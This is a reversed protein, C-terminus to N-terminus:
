WNGKRLSAARGVWEKHPRCHTAVALSICSRKLGLDRSWLRTGRQFLAASGVPTDKEERGKMNEFLTAILVKPSGHMIRYGIINVDEQIATEM